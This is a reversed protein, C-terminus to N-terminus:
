KYMFCSSQKTVLKRLEAETQSLALAESISGSSYRQAISYFRSSAREDRWALFCVTNFTNSPPSKLQDLANNIYDYTEQNYSPTPESTPESNTNPNPEDSIEYKTVKVKFNAYFPKRKKETEVLRYTKTGKSKEVVEVSVAFPYEADCSEDSKKGKASAGKVNKWSSGKKVQIKVNVKTKYCAFFRWTASISEDNTSWFDCVYKSGTCKEPAYGVEASAPGASSLVLAVSVLLASLSKLTMLLKRKM